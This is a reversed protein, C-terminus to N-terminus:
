NQLYYDSPALTSQIHPSKGSSNKWSLQILTIAHPLLNGYFLRNKKFTKGLRVDNLAKQAQFTNEIDTAM